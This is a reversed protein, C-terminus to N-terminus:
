STHYSINLEKKLGASPFLKIRSSLSHHTTKTSKENQPARGGVRSGRGMMAKRKHRVCDRRGNPRLANSHVTSIHVKSTRVVHGDIHKHM